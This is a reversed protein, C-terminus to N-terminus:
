RERHSQKLAREMERRAAKKKITARKDHQQKGRVLALEVKAKGRKFYLELPVLSWGRLKVKGALREIENRHLLLRRERLPEHNALNGHSYPAIHCHYLVINGREIRAFSEQLTAKGERLSKVETGLLSIGAEHREEIFYDHFAKRNTAIIKHGTKEATM